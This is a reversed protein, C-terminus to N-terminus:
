ADRSAITTLDFSLSTSNSPIGTLGPTAVILNPLLWLFGAAADDSLMRAAQQMLVTQEDPSVQDAQAILEQFAPNDYHWYYSPDAFRVIDRAEVHAVITMDYNGASFVEEYWRAFEMEEVNVTVGVEKLQSAIFQASATAYPLAPIRLNVTLGDPHGAEALLERAKVPDYPYAGSLDEFWPDTPPVMSGILMGKGAWVTDLLARRDIGYNIAQRVQLNDFPAKANNFGLVVEAQTTGDIVQFKGPDSFETLAEPAQVNSIVDLDGSLMATNEANADAYYRFTAQDFRAATGWYKPNQELTVSEGKSWSKLKYPGSGMPQTAMSEYGAPDIIVGAAGGMSYLWNNSPKSLKVEVTSEDKATASELVSVANQIAGTSKENAKVFQMSKVVAEANVPSGSAFKATPQLNFTYTMRDSSVTWETALLPRIKGSNDIKVLTEYVNYLLAQPIGGGSNTTLDMSDPALTAGITIERERTGSDGGTTSCAALPLLVLTLMSALILTGLRSRKM